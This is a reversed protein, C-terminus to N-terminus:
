YIIQAAAWTNKKALELLGQDRGPFRTMSELCSAVPSPLASFCLRNAILIGGPHLCMIKLFAGSVDLRPFKFRAKNLLNFVVGVGLLFPEYAM